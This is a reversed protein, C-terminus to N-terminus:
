PTEGDDPEDLRWGEPKDPLILRVAVDDGVLRELTAYVAGLFSEAAGRADEPPAEALWSIGGLHPPASGVTATALNPHHEAATAMARHLLRTCGDVGIWPALRQHLLGCLRELADGMTAGEPTDLQEDLLLRVTRENVEASM